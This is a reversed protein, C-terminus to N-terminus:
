HGGRRASCQLLEARLDATAAAILGNKEMSGSYAIATGDYASLCGGACRLILDGPAIDWDRVVVDKVFADASGEAVRCIKLGISGSEMYNTFGCKRFAELAAGRPEPYNDILTKGTQRQAVRIPTGNKFAAAGEEARWVEEFAPAYVVGLVPRGDRMLAVQTVFGDFGECYSATGDIPDILWYLRPRADTSHSEPDEESIVPIHPWRRTLANRLVDHARGDAEAKIQDGVTRAVMAGSRRWQLLQDGLSRAISEVCDIM